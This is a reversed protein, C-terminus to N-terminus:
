QRIYKIISITILVLGPIYLFPVFPNDEMGPYAGIGAVLLLLIIGVFFMPLLKKNKM